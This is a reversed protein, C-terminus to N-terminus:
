RDFRPEGANCASEKGDSSGLFGLKVIVMNIIFISWNKFKLDIKNEQSLDYQIM